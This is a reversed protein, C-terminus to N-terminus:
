NSINYNKEGSFKNTIGGGEKETTVLRGFKLLRVQLELVTMELHSNISRM